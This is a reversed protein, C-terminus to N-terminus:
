DAEKDEEDYVSQSFLPTSYGNWTDYKSEQYEEEKKEEGGQQKAPGIDYRTIFGTAGRGLGPVYGPPRPDFKPKTFVSM